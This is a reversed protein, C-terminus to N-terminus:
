GTERWDVHFSGMADRREFTHSGFYDRQAQVLDAPLVVSRYADYYSLAAMMGPVPIGLEIASAAVGRLASQHEALRAGLTVDLLPHELNPSRLYVARLDELMASRIICGGRWVGLVQAPRIQFRYHESAVSLLHLGQAYTVLMTAWLARGLQRLVGETRLYMPRVPGSLRTSAMVRELKATSLARMSVGADINPVAVELAMADQSTWAGTGKQRAVDLVQDILHGGSRWDRRRFIDATIEMLYGSLTTSSWAQFVRQLADDDLRLGRHMVDYAETIAQMLGYEIGNHVMKVYHGAAGRGLYAVCPEGDVHAAVAELLPRLHEWTARSGGPMLSPGYRAGASGGSIGMGLFHICDRALARARRQSDAYHSNGGDIVMDQRQLYPRLDTMVADVAGVPVLLLMARPLKLMQMLQQLDGTATGKPNGAFAAAFDATRRPEIDYGVVSYGHDLVNRALNAGMVGLGIIGIDYHQMTSGETPKTNIGSSAAQCPTWPIRAPMAKGSAQVEV